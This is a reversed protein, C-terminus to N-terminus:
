VVSPRKKCSCCSLQKIKCSNDSRLHKATRRRSHWGPKCLRVRSSISRIVVQKKM